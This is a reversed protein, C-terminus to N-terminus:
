HESLFSCAFVAASSAMSLILFPTGGSNDLSSSFFIVALYAARELM